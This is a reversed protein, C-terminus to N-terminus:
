PRKECEAAEPVRNQKLEVYVSCVMTHGRAKWCSFCCLCKPTSRSSLAHACACVCVCVGKFWARARVCVGERSGEMEAGKTTGVRNALYVTM